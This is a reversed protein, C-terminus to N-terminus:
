KTVNNASGDAVAVSNAERADDVEVSSADVEVEASSAAVDVEVSSADVDVEASSAAVDGAVDDELEEGGSVTSATFVGGRVSVIRYVDNAYSWLSLHPLRELSARYNVSKSGGPVKDFLSLMEAFRSSATAM